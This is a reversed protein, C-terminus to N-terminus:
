YTTFSPPFFDVSVGLLYPLLTNRGLTLELKRFKWSFPPSLNEENGKIGRWLWNNQELIQCLHCVTSLLCNLQKEKLINFDKSLSRRKKPVRSIDMGASPSIICSATIGSKQVATTCSRTGTICVRSSIKIQIIGALIWRLGNVGACNSWSSPHGTYHLAPNPTREQFCINLMWLNSRLM